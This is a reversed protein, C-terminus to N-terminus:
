AVGGGAGPCPAARASSASRAEEVLVVLGRESRCALGRVVLARLAARASGISLGTRLAASTATIPLRTDLLADFVARQEESLLLLAREVPSM